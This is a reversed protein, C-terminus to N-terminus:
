LKSSLRTSIAEKAPEPKTYALSSAPILGLSVEQLYTKHLYMIIQSFIKQIEEKNLNGNQMATIQTRQNKLQNQSTEDLIDILSLLATLGNRYAKQDYIIEEIIAIRNILLGLFINKPEITSDNFSM